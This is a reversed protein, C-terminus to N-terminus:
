ADPYLAELRDAYARLVPRRRVKMTPTLLDGGPDWADTVVAFARIQQVKSLTANAAAIGAELDDSPSDSVLLAVLYPRGEGAVVVHSATPCHTLLAQEIPAPAINEGGATILLEKKRDVITLYGDADATAIDGTHLWGDDDLVARTEDPLDRYGRMVMPGRVLLEGDAELRTEVGPLPLGVTGPRVAGPPNMTAMGALESMGWGESLPVGASILYAVVAPPTPAASTIALRVQDLGLRALPDPVERPLRQLGGAIRQWVQPVAGFLTPRADLLAGVIERPDALTTLETGCWSHLYHNAWRDAIHASPLFSILRDGEVMGLAAASIRCMATMNAHTIEVGKPAGTTGSTYVITLLHDPTIRAAAAALDFDPEGAAIVDDLSVGPAGDVSVLHDLPRGHLLPALRSETIVTRAGSATLLYGVQEPSSSHYCSFPVAGLHQVATDVLHFEPRNTLLLAVTDGAGVGLARLGSAIERVRAAYQSWTFTTGGGATRLAVADPIRAVTAQFASCLTAAGGHTATM